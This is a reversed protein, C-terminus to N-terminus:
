YQNLIHHPKFHCGIFCNETLWVKMGVTTLLELLTPDLLEAHRKYISLTKLKFLLITLGVDNNVVEESAIPLAKNSPSSIIPGNFQPM